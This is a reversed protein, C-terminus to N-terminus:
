RVPLHRTLYSLAPSAVSVSDLLSLAEFWFLLKEVLFRTVHSIYPGDLRSAGCEKLHKCWFQAAYALELPIHRKVREELDSIEDNTDYSSEIECINFKLKDVMTRMCAMALEQHGGSVDVFFNNSRSKDTLFDRFSTHLPRIPQSTSTVGSLLAGLYRVITKADFADGSYHLFVNLATLPLPEFSALVLKM